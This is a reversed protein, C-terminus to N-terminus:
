SLAPQPRVQKIVVAVFVTFMSVFLVDSLKLPLVSGQAPEIADAMTRLNAGRFKLLSDDHFFRRCHVYSATLRRLPLITGVACM